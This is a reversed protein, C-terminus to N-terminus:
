SDAHHPRSRSLVVSAPDCLISTRRGGLAATLPILAIIRYLELMEGSAVLRGLNETRPAVDNWRNNAVLQGDQLRQM